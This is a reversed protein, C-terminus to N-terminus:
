HVLRKCMCLCHAHALFLTRLCSALRRLLNPLDSFMMNMVMSSRAIPSLVRERVNEESSTTSRRRAELAEGDCKLLMLAQAAVAVVAVKGDLWLWPRAPLPRMASSM